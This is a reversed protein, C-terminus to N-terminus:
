SDLDDYSDSPGPSKAASVPGTAEHAHEVVRRVEALLRTKMARRIREGLAPPLADPFKWRRYVNAHYDSIVISCGTAAALESLFLTCLWCSYKAVGIELEHRAASPAALLQVALNCEAHVFCQYESESAAVLRAADLRRAPYQQFPRFDPIFANGIANFTDLALRFRQSM